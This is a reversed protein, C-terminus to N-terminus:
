IHILSLVTGSFRVNRIRAAFSDEGWSVDISNWDDATCGNNRLEDIEYDRIKRYGEMLM